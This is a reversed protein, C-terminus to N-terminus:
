EDCESRLPKEIVKKRQIHEYLLTYEFPFNRKLNDLAKSAIILEDDTDVFNVNKFQVKIKKRQYKEFDKKRHEKDPISSFSITESSNWLREFDETQIKFEEYEVSTNRITKQTGLVGPQSSDDPYYKLNCKGEPSSSDIIILSKKPFESYKGVHIDGVISNQNIFKQWNVFNKLDQCITKAAVFEDDLRKSITGGFAVEEEYAKIFLEDSEENLLLVRVTVGESLKKKILVRGEHLPGLANTGLIDLTNKCTSILDLYHENERTDQGDLFRKLDDEDIKWEGGIKKAKLKKNRIWLRLTQEKIGTQEAVTKPTLLEM